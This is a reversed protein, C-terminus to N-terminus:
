RLLAPLISGRPLPLSFAVVFFFHVFATLAVCIVVLKWIPRYRLILMIAAMYGFFSLVYGARPLVLIFVVTLAVLGGIKFAMRRREPAAAPLDAGARQHGARDERLIKRLDTILSLVAFIAICAGLWVAYQRTSARYGGSYQEFVMYGAFIMAMAPVILSGLIRITM